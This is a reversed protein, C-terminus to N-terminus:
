LTLLTMRVTKERPDTHIRASGQLGLDEWFWMDHPTHSRGHLGSPLQTRAPNPLTPGYISSILRVGLPHLPLELALIELDPSSPLLFLSVPAATPSLHLYLAIGDRRGHIYDNNSLPFRARPVESGLLDSALWSDAPKKVCHRGGNALSSNELLENGLSARNTYPCKPTGHQPWSFGSLAVCPDLTLPSPLPTCNPRFHTIVDSRSSHCSIQRARAAFQVVPNTWSRESAGAAHSSGPSLTKDSPGTSACTERQLNPATLYSSGGESLGSSTPM